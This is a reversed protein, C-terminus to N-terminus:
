ATLSGERQLLGSDIAHRVLEARTNVGLKQCIHARHNEVTRVSLLLREAVEANTQGLALERLVGLERRSLVGGPGQVPEPGPVRRPPDMLAAGMTPDVYRGGERVRALAAFLEADAADKLLYGAAGADFAHRLYEVDDQVTLVLVPVDPLLERLRSPAAAGGMGPMVLDMLVVDPRLSPAMQVAQEGSSAEGVVTVGGAVLIRRLGSRVLAHDDAILVRTM